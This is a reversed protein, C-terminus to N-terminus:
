AFDAEDITQRARTNIKDVVITDMHPAQPAVRDFEGSSRCCSQVM